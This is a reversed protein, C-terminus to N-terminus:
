NNSRSCGSSPAQTPSSPRSPTLTEIERMETEWEAETMDFFPIGLKSAHRVFDFRAMGLVAAARGSSITGRRYLETVILERAAQPAPLDTLELVSALDDDLELSIGSM